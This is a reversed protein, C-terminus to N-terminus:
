AGMSVLIIAVVVLSVLHYVINFFYLNLKREEWLVGNLLLAAIFGVWLWLALVVAEGIDSISLAALLMAMVTAVVLQQVLAALMYLPMKKEMKKRGEEMQEPTIEMLKMWTKGFLPGHWLFGIAFAAFAAVLVAIFNISSLDM